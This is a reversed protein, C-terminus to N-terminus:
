PVERRSLKNRQMMRVRIKRIMRRRKMMKEKMVRARLSYVNILVYIRLYVFLCEGRAVRAGQQHLSVTVDLSEM